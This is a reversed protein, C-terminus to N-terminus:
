VADGPSPIPYKLRRNKYYMFAIRISKQLSARGHTEIPLYNFFPLPVTKEGSIKGEPFDLGKAEYGVKCAKEGVFEGDMPLPFKERYMKGRIPQVM